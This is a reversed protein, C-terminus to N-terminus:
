AATLSPAAFRALWSLGACTQPPPFEGIAPGAATATQQGSDAMIRSPTLQPKPLAGLWLVLYVGAQQEQLRAPCGPEALVIWDGRFRRLQQFGDVHAPRPQVEIGQPVGKFSDAPLRAVLHCDVVNHAMSTVVHGAGVAFADAVIAQPADAIINALPQETRWRRHALRRVEALSLALRRARLLPNKAQPCRLLRARYDVDDAL